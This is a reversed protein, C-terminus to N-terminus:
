TFQYVDSWNNKIGKSILHRILCHAKVFINEFSIGTLTTYSESTICQYLIMTNLFTSNHPISSAYLKVILLLMIWIPLQIVLIADLKVFLM